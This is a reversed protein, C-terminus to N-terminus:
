YMTYLNWEHVTDISIWGSNDNLHDQLMMRASTEDEAEVTIEVGNCDDNNFIYTYM